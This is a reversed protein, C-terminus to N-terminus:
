RPPTRKDNLSRVLRRMDDAERMGEIVTEAPTPADEFHRPPPQDFRASGQWVCGSTLVALVTSCICRIYGIHGLTAVSACRGSKSPVIHNM